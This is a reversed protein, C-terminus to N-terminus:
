DLKQLIMLAFVFNIVLFVIVLPNALTRGYYKWKCSFVDRFFEKIEKRKIVASVIAGIFFAALFGYTLIEGATEPIREVIETLLTGLLFNNVIHLTVSWKIGYEMAAYAFIIGAFFAYISQTLNAHMSGFLLSSIIIAYGKGVNMKEFAKMMFGRYILEEAVPAFLSVYLMMSITSSAGSAAEMAEQASIGIQNLLYEVLTDFGVFPLQLGFLIMILAALSTPTMKKRKEFIQPLKIRKIFFLIMFGCGAAVGLIMGLGSESASEVLKDVDMSEHTLMSRIAEAIMMFIMVAIVVAYLIIEYILLGSMSYYLNKSFFKKEMVNPPLYNQAINPSNYDM